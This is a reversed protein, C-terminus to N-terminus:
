KNPDIVSAVIIKGFFGNARRFLECGLTVEERVLGSLTSQRKRAM